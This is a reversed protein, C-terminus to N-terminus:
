MMIKEFTSIEFFICLFALSRVGKFYKLKDIDLGQLIHQMSMGFIHTVSM